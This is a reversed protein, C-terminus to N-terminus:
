LRMDKGSGRWRAIHAIGSLRKKTWEGNLGVMDVDLGKEEIASHIWLFAM